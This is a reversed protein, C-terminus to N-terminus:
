LTLPNKKEAKRQIFDVVMFVDVPGRQARRQNVISGDHISCLAANLSGSGLIAAAYM